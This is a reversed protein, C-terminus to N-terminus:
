SKALKDPLFIDTIECGYERCLALLQPVDPFSNYDEWNQITRKSVGILEAAAEQTLKANVRLAKLSIKMRVGGKGAIM